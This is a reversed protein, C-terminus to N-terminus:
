IMPMADVAARVQDPALHAYRETVTISSHGLLDRVTTLPVGDMVLWSACTHRLDHIRFDSIGAMDLALAWRKQLTRIRWGRSGTFVWPSEPFNAENWAQLNDLAHRAAANLPVYRRRGSKTHHAELMLLSNIRDIRSWELFLLESKRCGTSLALRIFAPLHPLPSVRGAMTILRLAEPRTLWRLRPPSDPLALGRAPNHLTLDLELATFNVAASFIRLERRITATTVGHSLRHHIYARMDARKIESLVRGTFFPRLRLWAADDRLKSRHLRNVNYFNCVEDFLM